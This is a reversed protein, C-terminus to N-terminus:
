IKIHCYLLPFVSSDTGTIRHLYICLYTCLIPMNMTGWTIFLNLCNLILNLSFFKITYTGVTWNFFFFFDSFLIRSLHCDDMPISTLLYNSCKQIQIWKKVMKFSLQFGLKLCILTTIKGKVGCTNLFSSLVKKRSMMLFCSTSFEIVSFALLQLSLLATAPFSVLYCDRCFVVLTLWCLLHWFFLSIHM